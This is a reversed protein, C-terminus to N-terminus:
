PKLMEVMRALFAPGDFPKPTEVSGYWVFAGKPDFACFWGYARSGGTIGELLYVAEQSLRVRWVQQVPRPALRFCYACQVLEVPDGSTSFTKSDAELVRVLMDEDSLKLLREGAQSMLESAPRAEVGADALAEKALNYPGSDKLLLLQGRTPYWTTDVIALSKFTYGLTEEGHILSVRFITVPEGQPLRVDLEKLGQPLLIRRSGGPSAFWVRCVPAKGADEDRLGVDQATPELQATREGWPGKM